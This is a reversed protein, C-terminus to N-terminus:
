PMYFSYATFLLFFYISLLVYCASLLSILISSASLIIFFRGSSLENDRM